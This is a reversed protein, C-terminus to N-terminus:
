KKTAIGGHIQVTLKRLLDNKNDKPRLGKSLEQLVAYGYQLSSYRDKRMGTKEKVKILGNSTDHTLNILENILLTTQVYPMKMRVQQVDSLKGYGRIKSLKEEINTDSVLLNIYGNQFGARLALTMDNNSRANAKIAYVVKPASKVKCRDELEPNNMVNLAGYTESYLPDYRDAGMIYDLISQGVGNADIVLYDCDYQYFRRLTDLGLEETTLGECTDINIINDIYENSNTPIGSHLIFASADNNHKKSALLAIDLSLVRIEDTKKEPIKSRTYRYYDLNFICDGINRQGDLVRYEFLANDASGYFRGEREMMFSIDSFTAESMENIIQQRMLLGEKISLMYPLDCVLYNLRPDLMNATYAKVKEYMESASYFASSLYFEKNMEQLHAYEPKRLYGPQRPAANMPRLITDVIKQSVLRSEDIILINSRAGRSSEGAVVVRIWSGNKFYVFCDNQGTSVKSIENRLLASKQMFDDTIKLIIEKGQKFTYSCCVIKSGPYLICRCVAFLAVLYTKGLGRSAIFYFADYHMMAWILIKQFLKLHINLFEECFRQPNARYYSCREAITNMIKDNKDQLIQKDTKNSKAM